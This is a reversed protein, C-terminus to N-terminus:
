HPSNTITPLVKPYNQLNPTHPLLQQQYPPPPDIPASPNFAPQRIISSRNADGNMSITYWARTGDRLRKIQEYHWGLFMISLILLTTPPTHLIAIRRSMGIQDLITIGDSLQLM